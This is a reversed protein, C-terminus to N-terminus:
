QLLAAALEDWDRAVARGRTRRDHAVEVALCGMRLLVPVNMHHLAMGKRDDLVIMRALTKGASALGVLSHAALLLENRRAQEREDLRASGTAAYARAHVHTRVIVETTIVSLSPTLLGSRVNLGNGASTGLYVEHAFTRLARNDLEYLSSSGPMPLSMPTVVDAALHQAWLVLAEPLSDVERFRGGVSVEHKDGYDWRVGRFEGARIQRLAEFPRALDHGPSRVRHARGGFGPGTYDIPLRKGAREWGRMWGTKRTVGLGKAVAGDIATDYWLAAVGLVAAFGVALVDDRDWPIRQRDRWRDFGARQDPTLAADLDVDTWGRRARIRDNAATLEAYSTLAATDNEPLPDPIGGALATGTASELEALRRSLTDLNQDVSDDM